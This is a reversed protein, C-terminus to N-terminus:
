ILARTIKGEWDKTERNMIHPPPNPYLQLFFTMCTACLKKFEGLLLNQILTSPYLM